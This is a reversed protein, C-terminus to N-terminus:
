AILINGFQCRGNFRVLRGFYRCNEVSRGAITALLIQRIDTNSELNVVVAPFLSFSSVEDFTQRDSVHLRELMRPHPTHRGIFDSRLTLSSPM